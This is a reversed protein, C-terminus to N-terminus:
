TLCEGRSVEAGEETADTQPRTDTFPNDKQKVSWPALFFFCVFVSVRV